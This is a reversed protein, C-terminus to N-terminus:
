DPGSSLGAGAGAALGLGEVGVLVVYKGVGVAGGVLAVEVGGAAGVVAGLLGGAPVDLLGFGADDTPGEGVASGVGGVGGDVIDSGSSQFTNRMVRPPLVNGLAVSQRL